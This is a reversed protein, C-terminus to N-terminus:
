QGMCVDQFTADITHSSRQCLVYLTGETIGAAERNILFAELWSLLNEDVSSDQLM